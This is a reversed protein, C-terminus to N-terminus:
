GQLFCQGLKFFFGQEMTFTNQQKIQSSNNTIKCAKFM